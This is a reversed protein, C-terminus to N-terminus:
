LLSKTTKLLCKEAYIGRNDFISLLSRRTTTTTKTHRRDNDTPLRRFTTPTTTPTYNTTNDNTRRKTAETKQRGRSVHQASCQYMLNYPAVYRHQSNTKTQVGHAPGPRLFHKLSIFHFLIIQLSRLWQLLAALLIMVDEMPTLSDPGIAVLSHSFIGSKKSASASGNIRLGDTEVVLPHVVGTGERFRSCSRSWRNASTQLLVGSASTHSSSRSSKCSTTWFKPVTCNLSSRDVSEGTKSNLFGRPSM